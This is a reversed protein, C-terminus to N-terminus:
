KSVKKTFEEFAATQAEETEMGCARYKAILGTMKKYAIPIVKKFKPLYGDFDAIIKKALPSGTYRIHEEILSRLTNIDSEDEVHSYEVLSRNLKTYLDNAPDLVYAIGGSM